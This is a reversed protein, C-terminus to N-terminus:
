EIDLYFLCNAESFPSCFHFVFRDKWSRHLGGSMFDNMLDYRAAVKSFVDGVM